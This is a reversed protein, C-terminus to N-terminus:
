AEGTGTCNGTARRSASRRNEAQLVTLWEQDRLHPGARGAAVTVRTLEPLDDLVHSNDFTGNDHLVVKTLRPCDALPSLDLREDPGAAVKPAVLLERLNPMAAIGDLSRAGINMLTLREIASTGQMRFDWPEPTARPDAAIFVSMLEGCGDVISSSFVRQRDLGCHQLLPADALSGDVLDAAISLNRLRLADRLDLPSRLRGQVWLVELRRVTEVPMPGAPRSTVIEVFRIRDLEGVWGLPFVRRSGLDPGVSLGTVKRAKLWQLEDDSPERDVEAVRYTVEDQGLVVGQTRVPFVPSVTRGDRLCDDARCRAEGARAPASRCALHARRDERCTKLVGDDSLRRTFM